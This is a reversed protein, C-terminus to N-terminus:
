RLAVIALPIDTKASITLNLVATNLLTVTLVDDAACYAEAMSLNAPLAAKQTVILGDTAKLGTVTITRASKGVLISLGAPLSLVANFRTQPESRSRNVFAVVAPADDAMEETAYPQRCAFVGVINGGDRQVFM